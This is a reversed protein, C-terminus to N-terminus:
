VIKLSKDFFYGKRDKVRDTKLLNILGPRV